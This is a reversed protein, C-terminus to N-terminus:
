LRRSTRYLLLRLGHSALYSPKSSAERGGNVKWPSDAVLLVRIEPDTSIGAPGAAAAVSLNGPTPTLESLKRFRATFWFTSGKGKQSEVGITGEMINVIGKCISLGLGTGGYIRTTSGDVQSFPKYLVELESQTLGIGTDKVEFRVVVSDDDEQIVGLQVRVEGEHTFKIANGM